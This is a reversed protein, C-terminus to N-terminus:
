KAEQAKKVAALPIYARFGCRTCAFTNEYRTMGAVWQPARAFTEERCAPCRFPEEPCHFDDNPCVQFQRRVREGGCTPCREPEGSIIRALLANAEAETKPPSPHRKEEAELAADMAYCLRGFTGVFSGVPRTYLHWKRGEPEIKHFETYHTRAPM